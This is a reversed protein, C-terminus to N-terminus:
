VGIECRKVDDYIEMYDHTAMENLIECIKSFLQQFFQFFM